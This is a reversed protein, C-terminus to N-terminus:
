EIEIIGTEYIRIIRRISSDSQKEIIITGSATAEGTLKQFIIDSTGGSLNIQSIIFGQPMEYIKNDSDNEIYAPAKFILMRNEELHIGYAYDNESAITRERAERIFSITDESLQKLKQNSSFSSLSVFAAALILGIIFIVALIEILTFGRM